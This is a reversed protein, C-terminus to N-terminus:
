STVCPPEKPKTLIRVPKGNREPLELTYVAGQFRLELIGEEPISRYAKKQVDYVWILAHAKPDYAAPGGKLAKVVNRRCNLVRLEGTSRKLFTVTFIKGQHHKEIMEVIQSRQITPM